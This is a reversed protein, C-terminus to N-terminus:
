FSASKISQESVTGAAMGPGSTEAKKGGQEPGSSRSRDPHGIFLIVMGIGGALRSHGVTMVVSGVAVESGGTADEEIGVDEGGRDDAGEVVGTSVSEETLTTEVNAVGILAVAVGMRAKVLVVRIL